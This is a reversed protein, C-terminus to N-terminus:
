LRAREQVEFTEHSDQIRVAATGDRHDGAPFQSQSQQLLELRLAWFAAQLSRFSDEWTSCYMPWSEECVDVVAKCTICRLLTPGRSNCTPWPRKWCIKAECWHPGSGRRDPSLPSLWKFDYAFGTHSHYSLAWVCVSCVARDITQHDSCALAPQNQASWQHKISKNNKAHVLWSLSSISRRWIDDSQTESLRAKHVRVCYPM